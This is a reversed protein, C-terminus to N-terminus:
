TRGADGVACNVESQALLWKILVNIKNPLPDPLHELYYVGFRPIPFLAVLEGSALESEFFARSTYAVADGRLVADMILNGPMHLISKPLRDQIGQARFWDEVENTGLEVMWPLDLLHEPSTITKPDVLKPSCAIIMDTIILPKDPMEASKLDTFRIAVQPGRPALEVRKSTPDVLLRIDPHRAQFDPIKPMLWRDAIAPSITIVVPEEDLMGRTAEVGKLVHSFAAQLEKSLAEGAPTLAWTRGSRDVLGIGLHAELSKVQQSIAAHTVNLEAGATTLNLSKSFVCFARLSSLPPMDLWNM